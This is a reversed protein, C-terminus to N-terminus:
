KKQKLLIQTGQNNAEVVSAPVSVSGGGDYAKVLPANVATQWEGFGRGKWLDKAFTLTERLVQRNVNPTAKM